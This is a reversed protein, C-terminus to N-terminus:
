AITITAAKNEFSNRASHIEKFKTYGAPPICKKIKLIEEMAQIYDLNNYARIRFIFYGHKKYFIDKQRDKAKVEPRNHISGDIEIVYKYVSNQVDPIFVHKFTHNFKDHKSIMQHRTYLDKFWVESEVQDYRNRFHKATKELGNIKANKRNREVIQRIKKKTM